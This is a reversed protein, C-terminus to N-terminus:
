EVDFSQLSVPISTDLWADDMYSESSADSYLDMCQIAQLGTTTWTQSDFAVGDYYVTYTNADLNIEVVLEVWQNTILPAMGTGPVDSGGLNVVYGPTGNNCGAACLDVQVSWNCDTSGACAGDYTNLLIFFMDGTQTSPVYTWAKAYWLGSTIGGWTQVVDCGGSVALSNPSSHFFTNVVTANSATGGAWGQWGGQGIITSGAAYSDFDDYFVQAQVTAPLALAVAAVVGLVFWRVKM